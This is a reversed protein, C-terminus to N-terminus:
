REDTAEHFTLQKYDAVKRWNLAFVGRKGEQIDILMNQLSCGQPIIMNFEVLSKLYNKVTRPDHGVTTKITKQVLPYGIKATPGYEGILAKLIEECNRYARSVM